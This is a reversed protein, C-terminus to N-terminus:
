AKSSTLVVSGIRTIFYPCCVGNKHHLLSLLSREQSPTFVVSGVELKNLNQKVADYAQKDKSYGQETKKLDSERKKLEQQAHKLRDTFLTM